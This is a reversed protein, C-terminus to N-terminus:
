SQKEQNKLQKNYIDRYIPSSNLLFDHTGCASIQGSDLVLILDAKRVTSLRHAIVFTTRDRILAEIAIQILSETETDVSATADDLILIRPNILCLGHLLSGKNRGGSLTVGREGVRTDYGNVTKLLSIM